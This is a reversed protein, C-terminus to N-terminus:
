AAKRAHCFEACAICFRAAVSKNPYIRSADLCEEPTHLHSYGTEAELRRRVPMATTRQTLFSRVHNVTMTRGNSSLWYPIWTGDLVLDSAFAEADPSLRAIWFEFQAITHRSYKGDDSDVVDAYPQFIRRDREWWGNRLELRRAYGLFLDVFGLNKSSKNKQRRRFVTNMHMEVRTICDDENKFAIQMEGCRLAPAASRAILSDTTRTNHM